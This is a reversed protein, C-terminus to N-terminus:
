HHAIFIPINLTKILLEATSHKFFNSFMNRGFAGMVLFVNKKFVLDGFLQDSAKGSLFHFDVAGYHMQLFQRIKHNDIPPQDGNEDVEMITIKKDHLQPLLYTFQKIAYMSAAKGDYAFVIEEIGYFSYPAIVVPCESKALAEKVFHTPVVEPKDAFSMEADIVLLDAFRSEAIIEEIPIRKDHHVDCAVGRNKCTDKFRQLHDEAKSDVGSSGSETHPGNDGYKESDAHGLVGVKNEVIGELFVATLKSKSLNALYCAFDITNTNIKTPNIALLIKEM